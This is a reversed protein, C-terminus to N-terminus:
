QITVDSIDSPNILDCNGQPRKCEIESIRRLAFFLLVACVAFGIWYCTPGIIDIYFGSDSSFHFQGLTLPILNNVFHMLMTLKLSGTKYYVFSLLIGVVFGILGQWIDGHILAFSGASLLIAWIPKIGRTGDKRRYNLLSRLIGGRCFWEEFFAAVVCLTFDFFLNGETMAKMPEEIISPVKPLLFATIDLIYNGTVIIVLALGTAKWGNLNGFNSSDLAYGESFFSNTKSQLSAYIMAPVFSVLYIAIQMIEMPFNNKLILVSSLLAMALISALAFMGLMACCGGINPTYFSFSSNICEFTKLKNKM